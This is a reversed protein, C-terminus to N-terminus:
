SARPLDGLSRDASSAAPVQRGAALHMASQLETEAQRVLEERTMEDHQCDVGVAAMTPEDGGSTRVHKRVHDALRQALTGGDGGETALVAFRLEGVRAVRDETRVGGLLAEAVKAAVHSTKLGTEAPSTMEILIYSLPVEHRAARALEIDLAQVMGEVSLLGTEPDYREQPAELAVKVGGISVM